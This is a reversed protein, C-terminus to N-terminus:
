RAAAELWALDLIPRDVYGGFGLSPGPYGFYPWVAPDRYIAGAASRLANFFPTGSQEALAATCAAGDLTAFATPLQALGAAILERYAVDQQARADIARVCAVYPPDGLVAHPFLSHMARLLIQASPVDFVQLDRVVPSALVFPVRVVTVGILGAQILRRRALSFSVDVSHM